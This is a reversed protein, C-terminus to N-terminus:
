AILNLPCILDWVLSESADRLHCYIGSALLAGSTGPDIESYWSAYLSGQKYLSPM